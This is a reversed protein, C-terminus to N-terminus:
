RSPSRTMARKKGSATQRDNEADRPDDIERMAGKVHEAGIDAERQGLPKGAAEAEPASNSQRGQDDGSDAREDFHRQKRRM